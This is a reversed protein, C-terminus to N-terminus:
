VLRTIQYTNPQYGLGGRYLGPKKERTIRLLGEQELRQVARQAWRRNRKTHHAIEGISATTVLPGDPDRAEDQAKDTLYFLVDRIGQPLKPAAPAATRDSNVANM